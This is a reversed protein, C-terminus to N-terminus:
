CSLEQMSPWHPFSNWITKRHLRECAPLHKGDRLMHLYNLGRQRPLLHYFSLFYFLFLFIASHLATDQVADQFLLLVNAFVGNFALSPQLKMLLETGTNM